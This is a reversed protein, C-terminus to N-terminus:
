RRWRRGIYQQLLGVIVMVIFTSLLLSVIAAVWGGSLARYSVMLGVTVPVFLLMMNSIVFNCIGKISEEDIVKLQLLAFLLLMGLISGPMFGGMLRSLAVGAFYTVMLICFGKM